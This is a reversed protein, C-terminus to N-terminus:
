GEWTKPLRAYAAKVKEDAAMRQQWERANPYKSIDIGGFPANTVWPYYSFQL